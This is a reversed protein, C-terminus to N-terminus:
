SEIRVLLEQARERYQEPNIDITRELYTIAQDFRNDAYANVGLAYYTLAEDAGRDLAQEYYYDALSYNQRTYAILGLYYPAIHNSPRLNAATVFHEEATDLDGDEYASMGGEVLGRFSRRSDVYDLFAAELDDQNVWRFVERNLAAVNEELSNGAELASLSDWLIRNIERDQANVLFSVMGWAQPYFVDIRRTAEAVELDLMDAMAIPPADFEGDLIEKLRDLWALNERYIAAQFQEDYTAEEFFVAFGERLWLPPHPIFARFYQIFGQHKLAVDFGSDDQDFGVLESKAVDNYHLYVFDERSEGLVRQLYNDFEPKGEFIRVQMRAPLADLDFRFYDNYLALMAELKLSTEEAHDDSIQSLVRYHESTYEFTESQAYALTASLLVLFLLLVRTKM